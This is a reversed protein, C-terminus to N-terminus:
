PTAKLEGIQKIIASRYAGMSQFTIALADNAVINKCREIVENDHSALSQTPTSSLVKRAKNYAKFHIDSLKGIVDGQYDDECNYVNDDAKVIRELAERLRLNDAQLEDVKAYLECAEKSVKPDLALEQYYAILLSLNEYASKSEDYGHSAVIFQDIVANEYEELVEVKARLTQLEKILELVHQPGVNSRFISSKHLAKVLPFEDMNGIPQSSEECISKLKEINMIM